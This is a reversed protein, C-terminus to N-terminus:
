SRGRDKFYIFWGTDNQLSTSGGTSHQTGIVVDFYELISQMYNDDYNDGEIICSIM